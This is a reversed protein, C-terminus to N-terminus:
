LTGPHDPIPAVGDGDKAVKVHAKDDDKHIFDFQRDQLHCTFYPDNKAFQATYEKALITQFTAIGHDKMFEVYYPNDDYFVTINHEKLNKLKQERMRKFHSADMGDKEYNYGMLIDEYDEGIVLGYKDELEKITKERERIPTGTVIYCKGPWAAFLNIFFDPSYSLTDHYDVGINQVKAM